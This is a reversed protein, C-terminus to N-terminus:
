STKAYLDSVVVWHCKGKHFQPVFVRFVEGEGQMVHVGDLVAIVRGVVRM